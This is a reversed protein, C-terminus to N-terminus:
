PKWGLKQMIKRDAASAKQWKQHLEQAFAKFFLEEDGLSEMSRLKDFSLTHDKGLEPLYAQQAENWVFDAEDERDLWSWEEDPSAATGPGPFFRYHYKVRFADAVGTYAQWNVQLQQNLGGPGMLHAEGPLRLVGKLKGQRLQYFHYSDFFVGTGHDDIQRLVLTKNAQGVVALVLEPDGYWNEVPVRAKVLGQADIVLLQANSSQRGMLVALEPQPDADLNASLTVLMGHGLFDGKGALHLQTELGRILTERATGDPIPAQLARLQAASLQAQMAIPAQPPTLLAFLTLLPKLLPAVSPIPM